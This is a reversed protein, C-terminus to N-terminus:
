MESGRDEEESEGLRRDLLLEISSSPQMGLGGDGGDSEGFICGVLLEISLSPQMGPGRDGGDSESGETSQCSPRHLHNCDRVETEM